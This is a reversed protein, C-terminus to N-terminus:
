MGENLDPPTPKLGRVRDLRKSDGKLAEELDIGQAAAFDVAAQSDFDDIMDTISKLPARRGLDAGWTKVELAVSGKSGVFRKDAPTTVKTGGIGAKKEAVYKKDKVKDLEKMYEAVRRATNQIRASSGGAKLTITEPGGADFRAVADIQRQFEAKVEAPTMAKGTPKGAPAETRPAPKAAPATKVPEPGVETRSAAEDARTKAEQAIQRRVGRMAGDLTPWKEGTDPNLWNSGKKVIQFDGGGAPDSLRYETASMRKWSEKAGEAQGGSEIALVNEPLAAKSPAPKPAPKPAEDPARSQPTTQPAQAAANTAAAPAADVLRSLEAITEDRLTKLTDADWGQNNMKTVRAQAAKKEAATKAVKLAQQAGYFEAAAKRELDLARDLANQADAATKVKIPILNRLVQPGDYMPHGAVELSYTAGEAATEGRLQASLDAMRKVWADPVAERNAKKTAIMDAVMQRKEELGQRADSASVPGAATSGAQDQAPKEAANGAPASKTQEMGADGGAPAQPAPATDKAARKLEELKRMADSVSGRWVQEKGLAGDARYVSVQDHKDAGGLFYVPQEMGKSRGGGAPATPANDVNTAEPVVPENAASERRAASTGSSQNKKMILADMEDVADDMTESKQIRRNLDEIEDQSLRGQRELTRLEGMADQQADRVSKEYAALQNKIRRDNDRAKERTKWEKRREAVPRLAEVVAREFGEPNMTIRRRGWAREVAEIVPTVVEGGAQYTPFSNVIEEELARREEAAAKYGEGYRRKFSAEAKDKRSETAAAKPEVVEPTIETAEGVPMQEFEMADGVPIPDEVVEGVPLPEPMETAEGVPISEPAPEVVEPTIETAEGVPIKETKGVPLDPQGEIVKGVPIKETKPKPLDPMGETVEGVPLKGGRLKNAEALLSQRLDVDDTARAAAELEAIDTERKIVKKIEAERADLVKKVAQSPAQRRLEAIKALRPDTPPTGGGGGGGAPPEPKKPAYGQQERALAAEPAQMARGTTETAAVERPGGAVMVDPMDPRGPVAPIDPVRPRRSGEGIEAPTREVLPPQAARQAAVQGATTVAPENPGRLKRPAEERPLAGPDEPDVTRTAPAVRRTEGAGRIIRAPPMDDGVAPLLGEPEIAPIQDGPRAVRDPAEATWEPVEAPAEGRVDPRPGQPTPAGEPAALELPPPEPTQAARAQRKDYEKALRRVLAPGVRNYIRSGGVAATAAAGAAAPNLYAVAGAGTGIGLKTGVTLRGHGEPEEIVKAAKALDTLESGGSMTRRKGLDDRNVLDWLQGPEIYGTAGFKKIDPLLTMGYAYRRRAVQTEKAKGPPMHKEAADRVIEQLERLPRTLDSNDHHDRIKEGIASDWKALESGPLKGGRAEAADLTDAIRKMVYARQDRDIIDVARKSLGMLQSSVNEDIRVDGVSSMNERITSGNKDNIRNFAETSLQKDKADPDLLKVTAETIARRNQETKGGGFPVHQAARGIERLAPRETVNHVNVTGGAREVAAAEALKVPNPKVIATAVGDPFLKEAAPVKRPLERVPTEAAGRLTQAAALAGPVAGFVAGLGLEAVSPAVNQRLDSFQEGEPLAANEAARGATGTIGVIGTGTLGGGIVRGVANEVVRGMAGGLKMPLLNLAVRVGGTVAGAKGAEGVTGGRQVVEQAREVGHQLGFGGAIEVPMSAIGGAFQGATSFEEGAQPRYEREMSGTVRDMAEFVKDQAKQGFLRAATAAALGFMKVVPITSAGATRGASEVFGVERRPPAAPEPAPAPAPQAPISDQTARLRSAIDALKRADEVNGAADANRLAQMVDDYSPM